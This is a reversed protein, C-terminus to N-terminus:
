HHSGSNGGWPEGSAVFPPVRAGDSQLGQRVSDGCALETGAQAIVATVYGLRPLPFERALLVPAAGDGTETIRARMQQDDAQCGAGVPAISGATRKGAVGAPHPEVLRQM